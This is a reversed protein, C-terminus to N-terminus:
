AAKGSSGKMSEEHRPTLAWAMLTGFGLISLAWVRIFLPGLAYWWVLIRRFREVGIFPTIIGTLLTFAGFFRLVGSMRSSAASSLLAVGMTLRTAAAALLGLPNEFERALYFLRKPSITGLAGLGALTLSIILAIAKM